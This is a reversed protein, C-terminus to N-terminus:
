DWFSKSESRKVNKPAKQRDEDQERNSKLHYDMREWDLDSFRDLGVICAAARSYIRADLAENRDRTKEWQYKLYGGRVRHAVLQEATLMKFYEEDYQPFHCYCKPFKEEKNTPPNLKLWGYFEEKAVSVGVPFLRAGKTYKKGSTTVDVYSPFGVISQVSDRGKLIYVKPIKRCATYVTQTNFGSDVGIGRIPLQLKTGEVKFQEACLDRILQYSEINSTDAPIVRYDISWSQKDRGWATIEVEFRDKQVDVGATVFLGGKPIQNFRYHERRDYLSRWEPVDGKTKYPIGLTTNQFVMMKLDNKTAKLFQRVCGEWSKWGLPSYLSSLFYGRVNPNECEKTSRWQGSALMQTKFREEIKEKCESCVMHATSPNRKKWRIQKWEITQFHNCHPCPVFYKRQDSEEYSSAIRSRNETTPTSCKYIKKKIGFTQTRAEAIEVPDGEGDVDIPYRDVEDLMLNKIPMSALSSASNAGSIILIGGDFEKLFASNSSDRSKKVSVKDRIRESDKIMHDIRQRSFRKAMVDTPQVILTPAPTHDISYGVWNMGMESFGLQSGKQVVVEQVSSNSSLCDMIERLYPTRSTRWPGPEASSVSSLRRHKDSWESVTLPKERLTGKFLAYVCKALNQDQIREEYESPM